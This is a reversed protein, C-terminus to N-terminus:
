LQGEQSNYPMNGDIVLIYGNTNQPLHLNQIDMHNFTMQGKMQNPCADKDVVKIRIYELLYKDTACAVKINLRTDDETIKFDYKGFLHARHATLPLFDTTYHKSHFQKVQQMYDSRSVFEVKRM